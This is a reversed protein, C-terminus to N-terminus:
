RKNGQLNLVVKQTNRDKEKEVIQAVRQQSIGYHRAVVAQSKKKAMAAIRKDRRRNVQLKEIYDM